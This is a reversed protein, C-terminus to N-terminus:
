AGCQVMLGSAPYYEPRHTHLDGNTVLVEDGKEFKAM